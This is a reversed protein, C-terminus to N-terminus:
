EDVLSGQRMSVLKKKLTEDPKLPEAAPIVLTTHMHLEADTLAALPLREIRPEGIPLTAAEYLIVQHELPYNESLREVLLQLASTSAHFQYLSRDGTIGIQWLILMASPDIRRRHFLFQSAEFQACGTAGPDLGLDAILCDEASIGPEMQAQFGEARAQKIAQHPVLAFVGPHGYFAACVQKGLRVEALIAEVMERYSDRRSKGEAYYGQLSRVDPHMSAVWQEVVGHSMLSFVVDAEEICSQSYPSIHAGLMMGVGVCSLSGQVTSM